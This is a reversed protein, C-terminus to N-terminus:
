REVGSCKSESTARCNDASRRPPACFTVAYDEANGGASNMLYLCNLCMPRMAGAVRLVEVVDNLHWLTEITQVPVTATGPIFSTMPKVALALTGISHGMHITKYLSAFAITEGCHGWPTGFLEASSETPSIGSEAHARQVPTPYILPPSWVNELVKIREERVDEQGEGKGPSVSAALSFRYSTVDRLVQVVTPTNVNLVSASVRSWEAYRSLLRILETISTPQPTVTLHTLFYGLGSFYDSIGM